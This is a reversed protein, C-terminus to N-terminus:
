AQLHQHISRYSPLEVRGVEMNNSSVPYKVCFHYTLHGVELGFIM